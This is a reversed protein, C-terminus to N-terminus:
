AQEEPVLRAVFSSHDVMATLAISWGKMEALPVMIAELYTEESRRCRAHVEVSKKVDLLGANILFRERCEGHFLHRGAHYQLHFICTDLNIGFGPLKDLLSMAEDSTDHVVIQLHRMHIFHRACFYEAGFGGEEATRPRGAIYNFTNSSYFIPAAEEHVAKCTRLLRLDPDDRGVWPRCVTLVVGKVLIM